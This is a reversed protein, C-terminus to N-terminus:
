IPHICLFTALSATRGYNCLHSLISTPSTYTECETHLLSSVFRPYALINKSLVTLQKSVETQLPRGFACDGHRKMSQSGILCTEPQCDELILNRCSVVTLSCSMWTVELM